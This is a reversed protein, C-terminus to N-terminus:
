QVDATADAKEFRWFQVRLLVVFVVVCLAPHARGLNQVASSSPSRRLLFQIVVFIDSSRISTELEKIFVRGDRSKVLAVNTTSLDLM